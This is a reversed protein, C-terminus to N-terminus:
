PFLRQAENLSTTTGSQYGLSYHGEEGLLWLGRPAFVIAFPAPLEPIQQCTLLTGSALLAHRQEIWQQSYRVWAFTTCLLTIAILLTRLRFRIVIPTHRHYVAFACLALFAFLNLYSVM